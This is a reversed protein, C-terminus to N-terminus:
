ELEFQQQVFDKIAWRVRIGGIPDEVRLTDWGLYYLKRTLGVDRLIFGGIYLMEDKTLGRGASAKITFSTMWIKSFPHRFEPDGASEEAHFLVPMSGNQFAERAYSNFTDITRRREIVDKFWQRIRDWIM